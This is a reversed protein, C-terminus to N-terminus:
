RPIPQLAQARSQGVPHMVISSMGFGTAFGPSFIALRIQFSGTTLSESQTRQPVQM